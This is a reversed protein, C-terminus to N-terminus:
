EKFIHWVMISVQVSGIYETADSSIEHGTGYVEFVVPCTPAESDLLVWMVPVDNQVQLSLIKHAVPLDLTFTDKIEVNFKHITQVPVNRELVAPEVTLPAPVYRKDPLIYHATIYSFLILWTIIHFVDRGYPKLKKIM